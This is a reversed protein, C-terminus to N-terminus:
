SSTPLVAQAASQMIGSGMQGAGIVGVKNIAFTMKKDRLAERGRRRMGIASLRASVSAKADM